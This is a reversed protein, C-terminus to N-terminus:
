DEINDLCRRPCSQFVVELLDAECEPVINLNPLDPRHFIYQFANLFRSFISPRRAQAHRGRKREADAISFVVKKAEDPSLPFFEDVSVVAADLIRELARAYSEQSEGERYRRTWSTVLPHKLLEAYSHPKPGFWGHEQRPRHEGDKNAAESM